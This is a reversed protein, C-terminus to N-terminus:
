SVQGPRGERAMGGAGAARIRAFVRALNGSFILDELQRDADADPSMEAPGRLPFTAPTTPVSSLIDDSSLTNTAGKGFGVNSVLNVGPHVSLAQRRWCTLIWGYDWTGQGRFTQEFMYAWYAAAQENGLLRELWGRDRLEPWAALEPDYLRWARRWTAWGWILPYRSYRFGRPNGGAGPDGDARPDGGARGGVVTMPASGSISMVRPEHRHRVLMAECFRFFSPDPVCDDELVIAEEALGFAWDLGSVVRADLGLHADALQTQLECAWDVRELLARTTQVREVLEPAAGAPAADGAV